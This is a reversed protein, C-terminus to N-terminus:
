AKFHEFPFPEGRFGVMVRYLDFLGVDRGNIGSRASPSCTIGEDKLVQIAFDNYHDAQGEPYSYHDVKMDCQKRLTDLSQRIEAECDPEPLRTLINHNVTHGGVTLLPHHAMDRVQGWTMKRYNPAASAHPRVATAEILESIVRDKETAANDKCFQKITQLATEKENLSNLAFSQPAGLTVTVSAAATRNVCDEIQDVWFLDDNGILGTSIYFVSPIELDELIPKAVTYNNEFGDDFSVAVAREPYAEGANHIAVVDDMSLVNGHQKIFQIQERFDEEALHKRSANEIGEGLHRTVGHYLLILLQNNDSV